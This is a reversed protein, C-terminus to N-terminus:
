FTNLSVTFILNFVTNTIDEFIETIIIIYWNPKLNKQMTYTKKLLVIAYPACKIMYEHVLVHMIVDHIM